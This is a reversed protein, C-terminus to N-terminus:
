TGIRVPDFYGALAAMAALAALYSTRPNQPSPANETLTTIAGASSNIRIEHSNTKYEPSVLIRVVTREPGIGALSLLASVNVNKPFGKIAELASGEFIVTEEKIADPDIGKEALYPAGKISRPAKRTTLTASEIGSISAAKVADIGAIAGTPLMIRIGKQRAQDLLGENGIVGGISMIMADKGAEVVRKLLDPVLAPSAAEVVLDSAAVCEEINGAQVAGPTGGALDELRARDLDFLLIKEIEPALEKGAYAVLASGIAGCGIISVTKRM